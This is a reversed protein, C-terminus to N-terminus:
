PNVHDAPSVEACAQRLRDAARRYRGPLHRWAHLGIKARLSDSPCRRMTSSRPPLM